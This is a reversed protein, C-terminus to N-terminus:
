SARFARVYCVLFVSRSLIDLCKLRLCVWVFFFFCMSKRYTCLSSLGLRWEHAAAEWFSKARVSILSLGTEASWWGVSRDELMYTFAPTLTDVFKVLIRKRLFKVFFCCHPNSGCLARVNRPFFASEVMVTEAIM